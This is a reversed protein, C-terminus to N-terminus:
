KKLECAGERGRGERREKKGKKEKMAVKEEKKWENM